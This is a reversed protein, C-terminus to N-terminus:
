QQAGSLSNLNFTDGKYQLAHVIEAPGFDLPLSRLLDRNAATNPTIRGIRTYFRNKEQRSAFHAEAWDSAYGRRAYRALLTHGYLFAAGALFVDRLPALAPSDFDDVHKQGPKNMETGVLIPLDRERAMGVVDHLKRVKLAREAPDSINWNRDPIINLAVVGNGIMFDLLEPEKQEGSSTGDVWAATPLAGCYAALQHIVGLRPYTEAGPPQYAVGGTKILKQRMLDKFAPGQAMLGATEAESLELRNAWFQAPNPLREHSQALYAELIHRETPTRGASLPMVQTDFDLQLPSLADNLVAVIRRNRSLLRSRLDELIAQAQAPVARSTFGALIHYTVGPEGPSTIVDDAFEPLYVRTELNATGRLNFQECAWLFEDVGDLTDFDIIGMIPIGERRAMFSLYSPSYGYANYSYFTHAHINCVPRPAATSLEGGALRKAVAQVADRRAAPDFDNLRDILASLDAPM